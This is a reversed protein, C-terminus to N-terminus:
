KIKRMEATFQLEDGGSLGPLPVQSHLSPLMSYPVSTLIDYILIM